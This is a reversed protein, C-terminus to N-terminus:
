VGPSTFRGLATVGRRHKVCRPPYVARLRNFRGRGRGRASRGHMQVPRRRKTAIKSRNRGSAAATEAALEAHLIRLEDFNEQRHALYTKTIPGKKKAAHQLGMNIEVYAETAM